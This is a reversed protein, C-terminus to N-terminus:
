KQKKLLRKAEKLTRRKEKEAEKLAKKAEKEQLKAEKLVNSRQKELREADRKLKTADRIAKKRDNSAQKAERKAERRAAKTLDVIERAEIADDTVVNSEDLISEAALVKRTEQIRPEAEQAFGHNCLATLGFLGIFLMGRGLNMKRKNM